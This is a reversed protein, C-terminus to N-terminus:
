QTLDAILKLNSLNGFPAFTDFWPNSLYLKVDEFKLPATNVVEDFTVGNVKISYIAEGSPNRQQSIEFHYDTNLEYNYNKCYTCIDIYCYRNMPINVQYCIRFFKNKNLFVAPLRGGAGSGLDHTSDEDRTM